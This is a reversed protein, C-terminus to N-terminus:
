HRHCGLGGSSAQQSSTCGDSQGKKTVKRRKKQKRKKERPLLVFGEETSQANQHPPLDDGKKQPLNLDAFGCVVCVERRTARAVGPLSFFKYMSCIVGYYECARM